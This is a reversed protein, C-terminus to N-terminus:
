ELFYESHVIKHGNECLMINYFNEQRLPKRFSSKLFLLKTKKKTPITCKHTESVSVIYFFAGQSIM